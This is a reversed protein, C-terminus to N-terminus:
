TSMLMLEKSYLRLKSTERQVSHRNKEIDQEHGKYGLGEGVNRETVPIRRWSCSGRIVLTGLQVTERSM